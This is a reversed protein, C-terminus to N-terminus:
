SKLKAVVVEISSNILSSAATIGQSELDKVIVDYAGAKKEAGSLAQSVFIAVAKEAAALVAQGIESAFQKVFPGVETELEKGVNSFWSQIESWVAKWDIGM